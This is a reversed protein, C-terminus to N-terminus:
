SNLLVKKNTKTKLFIYITQKYGCNIIISQLGFNGTGYSKIRGILHLFETYM